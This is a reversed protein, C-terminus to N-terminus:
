EDKGGGLAVAADHIAKTVEGWGRFHAEQVMEQAHNLRKVIDSQLEIAKFYYHLKMYACNIPVANCIKAVKYYDCNNCGHVMYYAGIEFMIESTTKVDKGSM